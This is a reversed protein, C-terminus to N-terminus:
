LLKGSPECMAALMNLTCNPRMMTSRTDNNEVSFDDVRLMTGHASGKGLGRLFEGMAMM